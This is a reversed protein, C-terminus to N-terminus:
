EKKLTKTRGKRHRKFRVTELEVFEKAVEQVGKLMGMQDLTLIEQVEKKPHYKRGDNVGLAHHGNRNVLNPVIAGGVKAIEIL